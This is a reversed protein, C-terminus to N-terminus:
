IRVKRLRLSNTVVSVSSGAMAMGAFVPSMLIGFFPYLLGAAVPIGVINYFFAWFLNQRVIKMTERSLKLASVVKTIDGHLLTINATTIAADTGTSMAIGVTASALAPADNVGDGVMAVKIGQDTLNKIFNAKDDPKMGGYAESIGAKQAINKATQDQDGSLMIVKVGMNKMIEVTLKATKKLEDAIQIVGLIEKGHGVFVPTQGPLIHSNISDKTEDVGADKLYELNGAFYRTEGIIGEVGFGHKAKFSKVERIQIKNERAYNIIAKAIPHESSKELSSAIQMLEAINKERVETMQRGDDAMLLNIETVRPKGETLTGTKDMVVATIKEMKELSEADKILIGKQAGRGVAAIIATPTALGLACPCAIVLVGIASVLALPFYTSLNGTILGALIWIVFTALSIYLVAPVFVASIQDALREVPAISNQADSVMKAIQALLTDKGTKTVKVKVAGSLNLTGGIVKSGAKVDIPLSEGTVLSEDISSEGSDVVGDLPIKAGPKVICLDGVTVNEVPIEIEKGGRIVLATKAQLDLLKSLAEGTKRKSNAELSKGLQIFGIVVITVDFYKTEPLGLLNVIGPFILLLASYLYAVGTGLGVLTDMNAKGFRIFRLVASLFQRGFGLLVVSALVFLIGNLLEMSLPPAPLASIVRSVTEWLMYTFVLVAVPFTIKSSDFNDTKGDQQNAKEATTANVALSYGYKTIAENMLGPNINDPDYEVTLKETAYSANVNTIGPLKKLTRTIIGACSACHMGVIPITESTKM